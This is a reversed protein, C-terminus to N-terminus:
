SKKYSVLFTSQDTVDDIYKLLRYIPYGLILAWLVQCLIALIEFPYSVQLNLSLSLVYISIHLLIISSSYFVSFHKGQRGFLSMRRVYFLIIIQCILFFSLPAYSFITGIFSSLYIWILSEFLNRFLAIYVIFCIWLNPSYSVKIFYPLLATQLCCFFVFLLFISLANTYLSWKNIM